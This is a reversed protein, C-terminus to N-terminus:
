LHVSMGGLVSRYYYYAHIRSLLLHRGCLSMLWIGRTSSEVYGLACSRRRRDEGCGGGESGGIKEEDVKSHPGRLLVDIRRMRARLLSGEFPCWDGENTEKMAMRMKVMKDEEKENMDFAYDHSSSEIPFGLEVVALFTGLVKYSSKRVFCRFGWWIAM